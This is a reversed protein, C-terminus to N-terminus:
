PILQLRSARDARLWSDLDAADGAGYVMKAADAARYGDQVAVYRETGDGAQQAMVRGGCYRAAREARRQSRWGKISAM